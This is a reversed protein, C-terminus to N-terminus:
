VNEKSTIKVNNADFIVYNYGDEKAGEPKTWRTGTPYKIGIFGCQILLLSVTKQQYFHTSLMKYLSGFDNKHWSSDYQLSQIIPNLSIFRHHKNYINTLGNLLMQHQENNMPEYWSLYNVGNDEPIDVEYLMSNKDNYSWKSYDIKTELVEQIAKYSEYFPSPRETGRRVFTKPLYQLKQKVVNRISQIDFFEDYLMQYFEDCYREAKMRNYNSVEMFMKLFVSPSDVLKGDYIPYDDEPEATAYGLAVAKDDTVYTGWGFVQSGAGTSLYKKHNFKDFDHRSGHYATYEQELNEKLVRKIIDHLRNENMLRSSLKMINRDMGYAWKVKNIDNLSIWQFRSNEGDGNGIRYEYTPKNCIIRFNSGVKGKGWEETEIFELENRSFRIGTEEDVERIACDYITKDYGERMGVPVNYMNPCSPATSGRKAGLVCWENNENKAFIYVAASIIDFDNM